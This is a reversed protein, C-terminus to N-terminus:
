PQGSRGRLMVEKTAVNVYGIKVLPLLASPVCIVQCESCRHSSLQSSKEWPLFKVAQKEMTLRNHMGASLLVTDEHIILVVCSCVHSMHPSNPNECARLSM